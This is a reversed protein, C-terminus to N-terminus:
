VHARGIERYATAAESEVVAVNSETIDAISVSDSDAQAQLLGFNFFCITFAFLIYNRLMM